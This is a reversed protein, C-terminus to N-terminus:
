SACVSMQKDDRATITMVQTVLDILNSAPLPELTAFVRDINTCDQVKISGTLEKTVTEDIIPRLVAEPLALIIATNNKDGTESFKAFAQRALPFNAARSGEFTIVLQAGHSLLSAGAPLAPKCHGILTAMASPMVYAVMARLEPQTMCPKVPAPGAAQLQSTSVLALAAAFRFPIRTM